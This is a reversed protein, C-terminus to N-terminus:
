LAYEMFWRIQHITTWQVSNSWSSLTQIKQGLKNIELPWMEQQCNGHNQQWLFCAQVEQSDKQIGELKWYKLVIPIQRSKKSLRQEVM